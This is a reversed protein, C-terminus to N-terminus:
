RRVLVVIRRTRIGVSDREVFASGEQSITRGIILVFRNGLVPLGYLWLSWYVDSGVRAEVIVANNKCSHNAFRVFSGAHEADVYAVATRKKSFEPGISVEHCYDTNSTQHPFLEGLYPGLIDGTKWAHTTFLGYGVGGVPCVEFRSQWVSCPQSWEAFTHTCPTSSDFDANCFTSYWCSQGICDPKSFDGNRRLFAKQQRSTGVLSPDTDVNM